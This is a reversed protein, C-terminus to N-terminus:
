RKENLYDSLSVEQTEAPKGSNIPPAGEERGAVAAKIHRKAKSEEKGPLDAVKGTSATRKDNLYKFTARIHDEDTRFRERNLMSLEQRNLSQVIPTLGMAEVADDMRAYLQTRSSEEFEKRIPAVAEEHALKAAFIDGLAKSDGDAHARLATNLEERESKQSEEAKIEERASERGRTEGEGMVKEIMQDLMTSGAPSRLAAERVRPDAALKAVDEASLEGEQAEPKGEAGEAAPPAAGEAGKEEAAGEAPPDALLPSGQELDTEM